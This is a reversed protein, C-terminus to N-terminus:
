RLHAGVTNEGISSFLVGGDLIAPMTFIIPSRVVKQTAALKVSM